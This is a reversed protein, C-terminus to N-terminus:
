VASARQLAAAVDLVGFGMGRNWNGGFNRASQRLIARIQNANLQKLSPDAEQRKARHSLLLAIAGAVHPAAMSTGSDARLGDTTGADAATVVEGPAAIDPKQRGDRTPGFCSYAAVQYPLMAAVSGVAIVTDATGPITLTVDEDVFTAFRVQGQDREIWAHVEGSPSRVVPSRVVLQWDGQAVSLANGPRVTAVVRSDGNDHHYRIYTLDYRNGDPFHGVDGPNTPMVWASVNGSPHRLAVELEDASNFWLEVTVSRRHPALSAWRLTEQGQSVLTLKAHGSQNRENGASKVVVFGPERGGDCFDDFAVELASKGDHAGANMGQSVNVVVPLNREQAFQKVFALADLHSNSYGLSMPDDPGYRSDPIVVLVKADPAVGGPFKSGKRGVAISAVHTGHKLPDRGLAPPVAGARIYGNIQDETHVTGTPSTSRDTQDWVALIRTAGGSADRFAEHLVDVGTDIVAVLARDGTEAFQAHAADAQVFPVSAAVDFSSAPRSAEISEVMPDARLAELAALTGRGAVVRGVRSSVEFGAIAGPDWGPERARVLFPLRPEVFTPGFVSESGREAELAESRAEDVAGFAHLLYSDIKEM